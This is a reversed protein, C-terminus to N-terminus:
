DIATVMVLGFGAILQQKGVGGVYLASDAVYTAIDHQRQRRDGPVRWGLCYNSAASAVTFNLLVESVGSVVWRLM